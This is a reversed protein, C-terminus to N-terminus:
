GACRRTNIISLSTTLGQDGRWSVSDAANARASAVPREGAYYAELEDVYAAFARAAPHGGPNARAPRARHGTARARRGTAPAAATSCCGTSARRAGVRRHRGHAAGAGARARGPVRGGDAARLGVVDVAHRRRRGRRATGAPRRARVRRPDRGHRAHGARAPARRVDGPGRRPDARRHRRDRSRAAEVLLQPGQAPVGLRLVRGDAARRGAALRATAGWREWVAERRPMAQRVVDIMAEPYGAAVLTRKVAESVALCVSVGREFPIPDRAPADRYGAPDGSGVCPACNPAATALGTACSSSGRSCTTARASWGTTTPRSTRRCARPRRGRRDARRRPQAPQPLARRGATVPRAASPSRGTIPPDDIERRPNGLDFLGHPRNFCGSSGYATTTREM